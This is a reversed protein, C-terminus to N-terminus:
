KRRKPSEPFQMEKERREQRDKEDNEWLTLAGVAGLAAADATVALPTLMARQAAKHKSHDRYIPLEFPGSRQGGRVLFFPHGDDYESTAYLPLPSANKSKSVFIPIPHTLDLKTANVFAPEREQAIADANESLFFSRHKIDNHEERAEDYQVLVKDGVQYLKVNPIFAPRCDGEEWLASTCGQLLGAVVVLSCIRSLLKGNM